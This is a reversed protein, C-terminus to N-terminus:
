RRKKTLEDVLERAALYALGRSEPSASGLKMYKFCLLLSVLHYDLSSGRRGLKQCALQRVDVVVKALARLQDAIRRDERGDGLPWDPPILLREYTTQKALTKAFRSYWTQFASTGVTEAGVVAVMQRYKLDAELLALDFINPKWGTREFDLIWIEMTERDFFLNDLHCDGHVVTERWEVRRRSKKAWDRFREWLSSPLEQKGIVSRIESRRRQDFKRMENFFDFWPDTHLFTQTLFGWVSSRRQVARAGRQYWWDWVYGVLEEIARSLVRELLATSERLEECHDALSKREHGRLGLFSTAFGILQRTERLQARYIVNHQLPLKGEVHESYNQIERVIDSDISREGAEVDLRLIKLILDLGRDNKVLLVVRNSRASLRKLVTISDCHHFIKQLLWRLERDASDHARTRVDKPLPFLEFLVKERLDADEWKVELDQNRPFRKVWNALARAVAVALASDEESYSIEAERMTRMVGYSTGGREGPIGVAMFAKAERFEGREPFKISNLEAPDSVVERLPRGPMRYARETKAEDNARQPRCLYFNQDDFFHKRFVEHQSGPGESLATTAALYLKVSDSERSALFISCESMEFLSQLYFVLQELGHYEHQDNELIANQFDAIAVARNKENRFVAEQGSAFVKFARTLFRENLLGDIANAMNKRDSTIRVAGAPRQGGTPAASGLDQRASVKPPKGDAAFSPILFYSQTKGAALECPKPEHAVRDVFDECTTRFDDFVLRVRQDLAYGTFSSYVGNVPQSALPYYRSSRAMRRRDKSSGGVFYTSDTAKYLISCGLNAEATPDLNSELARQLDRAFRDLLNEYEWRSITQPDLRQKLGEVLSALQTTRPMGNGSGAARRPAPSRVRM